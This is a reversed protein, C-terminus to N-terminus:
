SSVASPSRTRGRPRCGRSFSRTADASLVNCTSSLRTRPSGWWRVQLVGSRVDWVAANCWSRSCSVLTRTAGGPVPLVTMAQAAISDRDVEVSTNTSRLARASWHRSRMLADDVSAGERDALTVTWAHMEGITVPEEVPAIAVVYRGAETSKERALDLDSPVRMMWGAGATGAVLVLAPLGILMMRRSSLFTM